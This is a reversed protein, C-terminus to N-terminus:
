NLIKLEPIYAWQNMSRKIIYKLDNTKDISEEGKWAPWIDLKIRSASALLTNVDSNYSSGSEIIKGLQHLSKKTKSFWDTKKRAESLIKMYLNNQNAYYRTSTQFDLLPQVTTRIYEMNKTYSRQYTDLLKFYEQKEILM